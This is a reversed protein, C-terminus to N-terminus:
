QKKKRTNFRELEQDLLKHSVWFDTKKVRDFADSLDILEREAAIVLFGITGAIPINRERAARRGDFEDILLLDARLEEALSIAASEGAHILPITLLNQPAQVKLWTPKAALFARVAQPRTPNNLEVAVEPPILVEAFVLRLLDAHGINILCVIPSSDAIVIM